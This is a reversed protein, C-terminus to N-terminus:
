RDVSIHPAKYEVLLIERAAPDRSDDRAAPADLSSMTVAQRSGTERDNRTCIKKSM